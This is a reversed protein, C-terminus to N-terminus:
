ATGLIVAMHYFGSTKDFHVEKTQLRERDHLLCHLINADSGTLGDIEIGYGDVVFECVLEIAVSAGYARELKLRRSHLFVQTFQMGRDELVEYCHVSEIAWARHVIDRRENGTLVSPLLYLIVDRTHLFVQLVSIANGYILLM